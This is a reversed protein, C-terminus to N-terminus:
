ESKFNEYDNEREEIERLFAKYAATENDEKSLYKEM